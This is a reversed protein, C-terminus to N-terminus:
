ARSCAEDYKGAQDLLNTMQRKFVDYELTNEWQVHQKVSMAPPVPYWYVLKSEYKVSEYAAGFSIAENNRLNLIFNVWSKANLESDFKCTKLGSGFINSPQRKYYQSM